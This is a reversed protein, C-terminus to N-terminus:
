FGFVIFAFCHASPSCARQGKSNRSWDCDTCKTLNPMVLGVDEPGAEDLWPWGLSEPLARSRPVESYPTRSGTSRGLHSTAAVGRRRSAWWPSLSMGGQGTQSLQSLVDSYIGRSEVWLRGDVPNESAIYDRDSPGQQAWSYMNIARTM